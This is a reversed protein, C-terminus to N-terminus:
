ARSRQDSSLVSETPSIVLRSGVWALTLQTLLLFGGSLLLLPHQLLWGLPTGSPDFGKTLVWSALLNLLLGFLFTGWIFGQQHWLWCCARRWWAPPVSEQQNTSAAM